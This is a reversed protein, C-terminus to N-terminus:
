FTYDVACFWATQTKPLLDAHAGIWQHGAVLGVRGILHGIAVGLNFDNFPSSTSLNTGVVIAFSPRYGKGLLGDSGIRLRPRGSGFLPFPCYMKAFVYAGFRRTDVAVPATQGGVQPQLVTRQIRRGVVGGVAVSWAFRSDSSNGFNANVHVDAQEPPASDSSDRPNANADNDANENEHGRARKPPADPAMHIRIASNSDRELLLGSDAPLKLVFENAKNQDKGANGQAAAVPRVTIRNVTDEQVAFGTAGYWIAGSGAVKPVLERLKISKHGPSASSGGDASGKSGAGTVSGALSLLGTLPNTWAPQLTTFEADLEFSGEAIVNVWVDHAGYLHPTSKGSWLLVAAALEPRQTGPSTKYYVLLHPWRPYYLRGFLQGLLKEGPLCPKGARRCCGNAWENELERLNQRLAESDLQAPPVAGVFRRMGPPTPRPVPATTKDSDANCTDGPPAPTAEPQAGAALLSFALAPLFGLM